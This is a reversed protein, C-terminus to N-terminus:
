AAEGDDHAAAPLYAVNGVSTLYPRMTTVGADLLIRAQREGVRGCYHAVMVEPIDLYAALAPEHEEGPIYVGGEWADYTPRTCGIARVAAAKSDGRSTRTAKLFQAFTM